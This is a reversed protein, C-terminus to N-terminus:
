KPIQTHLLLGWRWGGEGKEEEEEGAVADTSVDTEGGAPRQHSFFECPIVWRRSGLYLSVEMRVDRSASVCPANTFGVPAPPACCSLRLVSLICIKYLHAVDKCAACSPALASNM